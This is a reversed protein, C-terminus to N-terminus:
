IRRELKSLSTSENNFSLENRILEVDHRVKELPGHKDTLLAYIIYELRKQKKTIRHLMVLFLLSIVMLSAIFVVRDLTSAFELSGGLFLCVGMTLMCITKLDDLLFWFGVDERHQNDEDM